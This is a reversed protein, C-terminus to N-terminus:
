EAGAPPGNYPLAPPLEGKPLVNQGEPPQDEWGEEPQWNEADAESKEYEAESVWQGEVWESGDFWGPVWVMGPKAETPEWYGEYYIATEGDLWADVWRYGDRKEPRWYGEVWTEGDYHGGEWVYGPQPPANDPEWWGRVYQGDDLYYGDAWVWGPRNVPRWYGEVWTPGMWWGPVWVWSTGYWTPAARAPEWHGPVWWGGQMHGPVWAWGARAPPVWAHDWPDPTFDLVLIVSTAHTWRWYPHVYWHTWRPRYWVYPPYAHVPHAVVVFPHPRAWRHDPGRYLPGHTVVVHRAVPRPQTAVHERATTKVERPNPARANAPAASPRNTSHPTREAVRGEASDPRRTDTGHTPGQEPKEPPRAGPHEGGGPSQQPEPRPNGGPGVALPKAPSADKAPQPAPKTDKHETPPKGSKKSKAKARTQDRRNKEARPAASGIDPDAAFAPSSVAHAIWLLVVM